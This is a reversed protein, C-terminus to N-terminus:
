NTLPHTKLIYEACKIGSDAANQTGIGHTDAGCTDGVGYLNEIPLISSVRFPGSQEPTLATGEVPGGKKGIWSEIVLPTSIDVFIQKNELEPLFEYCDQLFVKKLKSWDHVKRPVSAGFFALQKGPPALNSDINSPIPGFFGVRRLPTDRPDIDYKDTEFPTFDEMLNIVMMDKIVPEELAFKYGIVAYSSILNDIKELYEKEFESRGVLHNVTNRIDANSVIIKANIETGDDLEVGVAKNDKLIIKKVPKNTLVHGGNVEIAKAFAKPIAIAGGIPYGSGMNSASEQMCQIFEAASAMRPPITFFVGTMFAFMNHVAKDDTFQNIFSTLDTKEEYLNKLKKKSMGMMAGAVKMMNKPVPLDNTKKEKESNAPKPKGASPKPAAFGFASEQIESDGKKIMGTKSVAVIKLDPSEWIGTGLKTARGALRLIKGFRAKLSPPESFIHVGDDITFGQKTYSSCAGGIRDNKELVLVSYGNHTLIAATGLGGIGSGIVIIDYNKNEM